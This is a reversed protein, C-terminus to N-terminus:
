WESHPNEEAEETFFPIAQLDIASAQPITKLKELRKTIAFTKSIALGRATLVYFARNEKDVEIFVMNNAILFELRNQLLGCNTSCEFALSDMTLSKKALSCIIDEYIELKSRKQMLLVSQGQIRRKKIFCKHNWFGYGFLM